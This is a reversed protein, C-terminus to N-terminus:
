KDGRLWKAAREHQKAHMRNMMHLQGRSYVDQKQGSSGFPLELFPLKVDIAYEFGAQMHSHLLQMAKNLAEESEGASKSKALDIEFDALINRLEQPSKNSM